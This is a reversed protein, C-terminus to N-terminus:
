IAIESAKQHNSRDDDTANCSSGPIGRPRLDISAKLTTGTM